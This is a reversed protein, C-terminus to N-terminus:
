LVTGSSGRGRKPTLGRKVGVRFASPCLDTV